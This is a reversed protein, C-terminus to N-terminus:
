VVRIDPVVVVGHPVRLHLDYSGAEVHLVFGGRDDGDVSRIPSLSGARCLDVRLPGTAQPSAIQGILRWSRTDGGGTPEAHLDLEGPVVGSLEYTMQFSVVPGRLGAPAPARRSDFILTAIAQIVSEGMWAPAAARGTEFLARARRLAEAPPDVGDDTRLTQRASRYRNVTATAEPHRDLWAEIAAAQDPGGEGAAYAIVQDYSVNSM